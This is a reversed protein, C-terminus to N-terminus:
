EFWLTLVCSDECVSHWVSCKGSARISPVSFVSNNDFLDSCALKLEDLSAFKLEIVKNGFQADILSCVKGYDYSDLFLGNFIHYNYKTAICDPATEGDDIHHSRLLESETVCFYRHSIHESDSGQSNECSLDDWTVDVYYSEGDLTIYNWIHSQTEDGSEAWGETCGCAVGLSNMLVKFAATYGSCVASRNVLCGYATVGARDFDADSQSISSSLNKDYSCIEVIYDHIILAKEYDSANEDVLAAVSSVAECFERNMAPIDEADFAFSLTVTTTLTGDKQRVTSTSGSELWFFEPHEELVTSFAQVVTDSDANKFTLETAYSELQILMDAMVEDCTMLEPGSAIGLRQALSSGASWVTDRVSGINFAFALLFVAAALAILRKVTKVAAEKKVSISKNYMITLSLVM